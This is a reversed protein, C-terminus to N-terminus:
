NIGFLRLYTADVCTDKCSQIDSIGASPNRGLYFCADELWEESRLTYSYPRPQSQRGNVAYCGLVAAEDGAIADDSHTRPKGEIKGDNGCCGADGLGRSSNGATCDSTRFCYQQHFIFRGKACKRLVDERRVAIVHE